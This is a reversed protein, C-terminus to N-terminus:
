VSRRGSVFALGAAFAAEADMDTTDLVFADGAPALPATSRGSDRADRERMEQLVLGEIAAIGRERLERARRGARIELSATVFLKADAKPCVVTGIDRGDLVAGGAGDPPAAAFRRQFDLLASRVEPIAAVRSALGAAEDSRLAPDDLNEPRIGQAAAAADEARDPNGGHRLVAMGVARYLLGTDLYAFGLARALRRALTGKGAAAPGDIAIIM